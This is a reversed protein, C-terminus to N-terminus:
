GDYSFKDVNNVGAVRRSCIFRSTGFKTSFKHVKPGKETGNSGGGHGMMKGDGIYMEVHCVYNDDARNPRMSHNGYYILDGPLILELEEDTFDSIDSIDM